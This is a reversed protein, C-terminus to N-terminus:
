YLFIIPNKRNDVHILTDAIGTTLGLNLAMKVIIRRDISSTCHIDAARGTLHYSGSVGGVSRNHSDCRLGSNISIAKGLYDRIEQLDRVLNRDIQYGEIFSCKGCPCKFEFFSFSRSIDGM